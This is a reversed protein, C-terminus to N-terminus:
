RSFSFGIALKTINKNYDVLSECYGTFFKVYWYTSNNFPHPHSYTFELAGKGSAINGRGMLTFMNNGYFYTFKVSSYGVYKMLDPNDSLNDNVPPLPMWVKVDTVLAQHQMRLTAYIYNISKSLNGLSQNDEFFVNETNPQGNSRHALALKLSRAQFISFNDQIPFIVFGEPNYLSERFPSSYTYLQWFAQHTYSLFYREGLGLKNHMIELKLSVQLEAEYRSYDITPIKSQYVKNSVGIPLLYNVKYTHLGFNGDLWKQMSNQAKYSKVKAINIKSADGLNDGFVLVVFTLIIIIHKM